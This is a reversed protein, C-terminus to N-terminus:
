IEAKFKLMMRSSEPWESTQPKELICLAAYRQSGVDLENTKQETPQLNHNNANHSM